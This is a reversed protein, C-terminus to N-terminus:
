TTIQSILTFVVSNIPLQIAIQKTIYVQHNIEYKNRNPVRVATRRGLTRTGTRSTRGFATGGYRPKQPDLPRLGGRKHGFAVLAVFCRRLRQKQPTRPACFLPM